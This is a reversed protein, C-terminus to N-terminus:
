EAGGQSNDWKLEVVNALKFCSLTVNKSAWQKIMTLLEKEAEDSVHLRGEAADGVEDYLLEQMTEIVNSAAWESVLDSPDVDQREARYYTQGVELDLDKPTENCHEWEDDYKSYYYEPESM